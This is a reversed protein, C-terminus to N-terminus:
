GATKLNRATESRKLLGASPRPPRVPRISESEIRFFRRRTACAAAKALCERLGGSVAPPNYFPPERRGPLRDPRMQTQEAPKVSVFRETFSLGRSGGASEGRGGGHHGAYRLTRKLSAGRPGEGLHLHGPPA